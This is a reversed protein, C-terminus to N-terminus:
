HQLCTSSHRGPSPSSKRDIYCFGAPGSVSVVGGQYAGGYAYGGVATAFAGTSTAYAAVAAPGTAYGRAEGVAATMYVIQDTGTAFVTGDIASWRGASGTQVDLTGGSRVVAGQRTATNVM